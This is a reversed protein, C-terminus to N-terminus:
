KERERERKRDTETEIVRVCVCVYQIHMVDVVNKELVCVNNIFV